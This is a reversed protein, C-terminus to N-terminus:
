LRAPPPSFLIPAPAKRLVTTVRLPEAIADATESEDLAWMDVFSMAAVAAAAASEAAARAAGAEVQGEPSYHVPEDSLIVKPTPLPEFAARVVSVPACSVNPSALVNLTPASPSSTSFSRRPSPAIISGGNSRSTRQSSLPVSSSRVNTTRPSRAVPPVSADRLGRLWEAEGLALAFPLDGSTSSGQPPPSSSPAITPPQPPRYSSRRRRASLARQAMISEGVRARQEALRGREETILEFPKMASPARIPPRPANEANRLAAAREVRSLFSTLGHVHVNHLPAAASPLADRISAGRIMASTAVAGHRVRGSAMEDDAKKFVRSASRGRERALRAYSPAAPPAIRAALVKEHDRSTANAITVGFTISAANLPTRVHGPHYSSTFKLESQPAENADIMRGEVCPTGHSPPPSAPPLPRPSPFTVRTTNEQSSITDHPREARDTSRNEGRAPPSRGRVYGGVVQKLLEFTPNSPVIVNADTEADSDDRESKRLAKAPIQPPPVRTSYARYAAHAALVTRRNAEAAAATSARQAAQAERFARIEEALEVDTPHPAIQPLSVPDSITKLAPMSRGPSFARRRNPSATVAVTLRPKPSATRAVESAQRSTRSTSRPKASANVPVRQRQPSPTREADHSPQRESRESVYGGVVERLLEVARSSPLNPSKVPMEADVIDIKHKIKVVTTKNLLDEPIGRYSTLYLPVAKGRVMTTNAQTSVPPPDSAVLLRRGSGTSARHFSPTDPLLEKLRSSAVTPRASSARPPTMGLGSVKEHAIKAGDDAASPPDRASSEDEDRSPPAVVDDVRDSTAANDDLNHHAVAELGRLLSPSAEVAAAQFFKNALLRESVPLSSSILHTSAASQSSRRAPPLSALAATASAAAAMIDADNHAGWKGLFRAWDDPAM